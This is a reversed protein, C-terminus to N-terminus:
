PTPRTRCTPRPRERLAEPDRREQGALDVVGKYASDFGTLLGTLFHVQTDDLKGTFPGNADIYAQVQKFADFVDTAVIADGLVGTRASTQEDIRSTTIYQDNHFLRSDGARRDPRGHTRGLDHGHRDQRRLVRLPRQVQHEAGQVVDSFNARLQQMLTSANGAALANAIAERATKTADSVRGLGTDQMELRNGVQKAQDILGNIKTQTGRMATLM